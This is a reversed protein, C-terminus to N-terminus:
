STVCEKGAYKTSSARTRGSRCPVAAQGGETQNDGNSTVCEEEEETEDPRNVALNEETEDPKLLLWVKKLKLLQHQQVSPSRM